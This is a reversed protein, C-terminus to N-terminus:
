AETEMDTSPLYEWPRRRGDNPPYFLIITNHVWCPGPCVSFAVGQKNRVACDWDQVPSIGSGVAVAELIFFLHILSAQVKTYNIHKSHRCPFQESEFM